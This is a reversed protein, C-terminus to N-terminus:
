QLAEVAATFQEGRDSYSNFMDFSAAAPSLIVVSGAPALRRTEAVVEVISKGSMDTVPIRKKQCLKALKAGNAGMTVVQTKTEGCVEVLSSYDSGKDKGGLILVKPQTFSRLAAIASGPTTAISDDYYSVDDLTRVLKLRHALGLFNRLGTEIAADDVTYLRAASIAACANELNHPGPLQVATISCIEHDRVFFSNAKVYVQGEDKAAYRMAQANWNKREEDDEAWDGTMAIRRSLENTPHYLCVGDLDQHRRINAKAEVYEAMNKHIDLHDAEIMLVVAVQPSMKADWLQFSSLEYVVIDDATIKPLEALAPVGINGVLHVTKGAARLISAILCSTTGKGKTGTVGIVPAPCRALFENTASWVKQASKLHRPPISPTRIVIDFQGLSKFAGKGTVSAAGYPLDYPSIPREDVITVQHGLDRWYEYSIKGEVGYGAIAVKM